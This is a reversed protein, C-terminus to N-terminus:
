ASRRHSKRGHSVTSRRRPARNAAPNHLCLGRAFPRSSRTPSARALASRRRSTCCFAAMAIATSARRRAHRRARAERACREVACLRAHFLAGQRRDGQHASALVRDAKEQRLILPLKKALSKLSHHLWWRSAGGWRWDGPTEDDLIYLFLVPGAAAAATLAANDALRLDQRFWMIVPQTLTMSTTALMADSFM